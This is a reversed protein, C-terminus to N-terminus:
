SLEDESYVLIGHQILIEAVIGNGTILNGSFTGDYVKGVWCSPSKSKLIVCEVHAEQCMRLMEKAGRVFYETVDKWTQTLIKANGALVDQATRGNETEAPERPTSLWGWQEPCYFIVNWERFREILYENPKSKGDYRTKLGLLCASVMIKGSIKKLLDSNM